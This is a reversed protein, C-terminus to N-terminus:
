PCAVAFDVPLNAVGPVETMAHTSGDLPVQIPSTVTGGAVGCYAPVGMPVVNAQISVVLDEGSVPNAAAPILIIGTDWYFTGSPDVALGPYAYVDGVPQRPATTSGIDLSLWQLTLDVTGTGPTLDVIAQFPIGPAISSNFAFLLLQPGPTTMTDDTPGSTPTTGPGPGSTTPDESSEEDDDNSQDTELEITNTMCGAGLALLPLTRLWPTM